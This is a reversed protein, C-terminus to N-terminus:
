RLHARPLFELLNNPPLMRSYKFPKTEMAANLCEIHSRGQPGELRFNPRLSQPARMAFLLPEILVQVPMLQM